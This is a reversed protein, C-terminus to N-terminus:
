KTSFITDGQKFSLQCEISKVTAVEDASLKFPMAFRFEPSFGGGGDLGFYYYFYPGIPYIALKSDRFDRYRFIFAGPVVPNINSTISSRIQSSKGIGLLFGPEPNAVSDLDGPFWGSRTREAIERKGEGFLRVTVQVSRAESRAFVPLLTWDLDYVTWRMRRLDTEADDFLMVGFTGLEKFKDAAAQSQWIPVGYHTEIINDSINSYLPVGGPVGFGRYLNLERPIPEALSRPEFAYRKSSKAVRALIPRLSQDFQKYREPDVRITIPVITTADDPTDPINRELKGVTTSLCNIPFGRVAELILSRTDTPPSGTTGSTKGPPTASHDEGAKNERSREATGSEPFYKMGFFAATVLGCLIVGVLVTIRKRNTGSVPLPDPLALVATDRPPHKEPTAAKASKRTSTPVPPSVARAPEVRDRPPLKEPTAPKTSLRPATSGAAVSSGSTPHESKGTKAVKKTTTSRLAEVFAACSPWRESPKKALARRVAAREQEPLMSLDPEQELHGKMLQAANGTFPLRGGRLECYTVALSYQDSRSSTLDAFFEPAAYEYTMGGSHGTTTHKLVRVLGFDGVKVGGGSLLLNHPKIDRHQLGVPKSEGSFVHPTHLYDLGRAADAMYGFLEDRRIGLLGEANAEKLRHLLTKDALEMAIVLYGRTEWSGVVALLNPHRVDKMVGLAHRETDGVRHGLRVFKLAVPLGGPATAKWVEGFGGAGLRMVLRYGAVPEEGPSFRFIREASGGTDASLSNATSPAAHDLRANMARLRAVKARFAAILEKPAAGQRAVFEDVSCSRGHEQLEEWRDLWDDLSTRDSM